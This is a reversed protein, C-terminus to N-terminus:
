MRLPLQNLIDACSCSCDSVFIFCDAFVCWLVSRTLVRVCRKLSRTLLDLQSPRDKSFIVVNMIKSNDADEGLLAESLPSRARANTGSTLVSGSAFSMHRGFHSEVSAYVMHAVGIWANVPLQTEISLTTSAVSTRPNGSSQAESCDTPHFAPCLVGARQSDVHLIVFADSFTAPSIDVEILIRRHGVLKGLITACYAVQLLVALFCLSLLLKM